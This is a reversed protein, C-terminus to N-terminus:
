SELLAYLDGTVVGHGGLLVPIPAAVAAATLARLWESEILDPWGADSAYRDAASPWVGAHALAVRTDFFVVESMEALEAMFDAPGARLLHAAVLSRVQGSALRGSATMGREESLVRVWCRTRREVESWVGAAVRGILTVRGEATHLVDRAARWRAVQAAPPPQRRLYDALAVPLRPHQSLALLDAPTDIDARTAAAPPLGHVTVGAERRLVPALMNDRGLREPRARVAAACNFVLWDSSLANNAVACPGPAASVEALADALAADALLPASGAGFYAHVRAPYAETLAALREGFHFPREPPDLDWVVPWGRQTDELAPDNTVVVVRGVAPLRTLQAVAAEAAALRAGGVWAELDSPGTRGIFLFATVTM